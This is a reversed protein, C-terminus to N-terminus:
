TRAATRNYIPRQVLESKMRLHSSRPRLVRGQPKQKICLPRLIKIAATELFRPYSPSFGTGTGATM